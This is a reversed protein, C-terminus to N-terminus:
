RHCSEWLSLWFRFRLAFGRGKPSTALSHSVSLALRRVLALMRARETVKPSLEGLPLPKASIEIATQAKLACAVDAFQM